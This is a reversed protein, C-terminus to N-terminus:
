PVQGNGKTTFVCGPADTVPDGAAVDGAVHESLDIVVEGAEFRVEYRDLGRTTPGGAWSGDTRYQATTVTGQLLEAAPCYGVYGMPPTDLPHPGFGAYGRVEQREDLTLWVCVTRGGPECIRIPGNELRDLVERVDGAVLELDTSHDGVFAPRTPGVPREAVVAGTDDVFVVRLPENDRIASTLTMLIWSTDRVDYALWWGGRPQVAWRAGVPIQVLRSRQDPDSLGAAPRGDLAFDLYPKGPTRWRDDVFRAICSVEIENPYGPPTDAVAVSLYTLADPGLHAAALKSNDILDQLRSLAPGDNDAYPHRCPGLVDDPADDLREALVVDEGFRDTLPGPVAPLSSGDALQNPQETTPQAQGGFGGTQREAYRQAFILLALALVAIAVPLMWLPTPRPAPEYEIAM